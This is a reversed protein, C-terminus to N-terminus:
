ARERRIMQTIAAEFHEQGENLGPSRGLRKEAAIGEHKDYLSPSCDLRREAHEREDAEALIRRANRVSFYRGQLASDIRGTDEAQRGRGLPGAGCTRRPRVPSLARASGANIREVCAAGSAVLFSNQDRDEATLPLDFHRAV